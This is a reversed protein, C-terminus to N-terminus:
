STASRSFSCTIWSVGSIRSVRISSAEAVARFGHEIHDATMVCSLDIRSHNRFFQEVAFRELDVSAPQPTKVSMFGLRATLDSLAFGATDRQRAEQSKM